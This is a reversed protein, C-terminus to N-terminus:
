ERLTTVPSFSGCAVLVLPTKGPRTLRRKLKNHPFAYGAPSAIPEPHNPTQNGNTQASGATSNAALSGMIAM